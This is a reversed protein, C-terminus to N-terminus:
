IWNMHWKFWKKRNEEMSYWIEGHCYTRHVYPYPFQIALNLTSSPPSDDNKNEIKDSYKESIYMKMINLSPLMTSIIVTVLLPIIGYRANRTMDNISTSENVTNQQTAKLCPFYIASKIHSRLPCEPKRNWPESAFFATLHKRFESIHLRWQSSNKVPQSVDHLSFSEQVKSCIM